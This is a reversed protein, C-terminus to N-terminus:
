RLVESNPVTTKSSSHRRRDLNLDSQQIVLTPQPATLLSIENFSATNISFQHRRSHLHDATSLLSHRDLQHLPQQHTVTSAPPSRDPSRHQQKV